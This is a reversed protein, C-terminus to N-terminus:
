GGGAAALWPMKAVGGRLASIHSCASAKEAGGAGGRRRHRRYQAAPVGLGRLSRLMSGNIFHM